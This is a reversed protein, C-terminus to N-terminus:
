RRLGRLALAEGVRAIVDDPRDEAIVPNVIWGLRQLSRLQRMDKIGTFFSRVGCIVCIVCIM